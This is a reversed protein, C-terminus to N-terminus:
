NPALLLRGLSSCITDFVPQTDAVSSSIVQLIAASATQQELAEKTENFLRVNELAIGMTGAVTQLLRVDDANFKRGADHSDLTIGGRLQENAFIPVTLTALSPALGPPPKMGWADLEARSNLVIPENALLTRIFRGNPDVQIPPPRLREGHQIAYLMHALGTSQDRWTISLNESNFVTRLKNGVLEVIAGFDLSRAMGLQIGNVVALEANRQETEKLLRQTEDFLRANELAVGMSATLTELLRLDNQDFAHESEYDELMIFGVVGARSVIPVRLASQIEDSGVQLLGAAQIETRTSYLAPRRTQILREIPGGPIPTRPPVQVRRGREYEYLFHVLNTRQDYWRIGITQTRLVERLKDGVLDVITQFDLSGSIGQQISNIVALEANRQTNERVIGDRAELHTMAVAAQAALAALLDRDTDDFRGADGDIDAYLCGLVQQDAVLPVVVCSRQDVPPAGEPGHRLCAERTRRAEELWAAISRLLAQEDEGRALNAATVTAGGRAQQVVLVRQAACLDAARDALFRHVDDVSRM